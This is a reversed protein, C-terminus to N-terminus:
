AGEPRYWVPSTWAREQIVPRHDAACCGELGEGITSADSCDVGNAACIRQSWRCSPNEVVRAYYWAAQGADFDPDRWVACLAQHGEGRPECTSTDVSAGNGPTGAVEYVTEGAEGNEGLWGKVLQIRQLPLGPSQDTGTDARASLAFVPAADARPLPALDSGMAAGGAYARTVFEPDACLDQPYDWGGFFRTVIRPGSTAYTERRQMAEFLADRTNQPAWVVALGGPNYSLKDPLGPPIRDRAPVGDGGHGLFSDEDAAGPAGLHTDTSAIIGYKYPNVGLRQEFALGESLADRVWGANRKPPGGRDGLASFPLQEFACLEDESVGAEFYCESSGKHQMIEVLPEYRQRLAAYEATIPNGNKDADMFMEGLSVNSNHPITLSECGHGAGDCEGRLSEWLLQPDPGNVFSFPREPVVKNRFVINRHWNGGEPSMGTWEYGVFSTFGCDQGPDNHAAAAERMENWPGLLAQACRGSEKDGCFGLRDATYSVYANFLYFAVRPFKRYVLCQWSSYGEAEPNTCIAVEGLLEAHDSVMAFDLPRQLQLSRQAQGNDDWPQIGIKEGRAFRYAQDPTTRTGQTSADLSYRTHVHLDGFWPQNLAQFDACPPQEAAAVWGPCLIHVLQLLLVTTFFRM